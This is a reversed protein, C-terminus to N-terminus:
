PDLQSIRPERSKEEHGQCETVGEPVAVQESTVEHPTAIVTGQLLTALPLRLEHLGEKSLMLALLLTVNLAVM